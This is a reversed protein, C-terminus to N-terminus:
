LNNYCAFTISQLKIPSPHEMGEAHLGPLGVAVVLPHLSAADVLLPFSAVTQEWLYGWGMVTCCSAAVLQLLRM